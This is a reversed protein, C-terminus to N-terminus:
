RGGEILKLISSAPVCEKVVMQLDEKHGEKLNYYISATNAVMGVVAGCDNFVPSGSSGKAFDATIAMMAAEADKRHSKFYRSIVGETYVFFRGDPHNIVRVRAGVPADAALAVPTLDQGDLQVIAVDDAASAALVAQVPLVRGDATMALLTEWHPANVVHYNTVCVGSKSIAYGGAPSVHHKGCKDCKYYGAVILVSAKMREYFTELPIAEKPPPVLELACKKKQLQEILAAMKVTRGAAVLEAAAKELNLTIRQDDVPEPAAAGDACPAALGLVLLLFLGLRRMM